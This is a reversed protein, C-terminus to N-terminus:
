WGTRERKKWAQAAETLMDNIAKTVIKSDDRENKQIHGMEVLMTLVDEDWEVHGGSTKSDILRERKRDQRAAAQEAVLEHDSLKITPKRSWLMLQGVKPSVEHDDFEYISPPHWVYNPRDIALSSINTM